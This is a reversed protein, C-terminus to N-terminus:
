HLATSTNQNTLKVVTFAQEDLPFEEDVSDNAFYHLSLIQNTLLAKLSPQSAIEKEIRQTTIELVNKSEIYQGLQNLLKALTAASSTLMTVADLTDTVKSTLVIEAAEYACGVHALAEFQFGMSLLSQGNEYSKSWARVAQKPYNRLQQSHNVCLYQKNM